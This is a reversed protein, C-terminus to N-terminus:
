NAEGALQANQKNNQRSIGRKSLGLLITHCMYYAVTAWSNFIRSKGNSRQRMSVQVDVIKMGNSQLLLLVGVDQYSLLTAEWTCLLKLAEHDYVRYGSTIDEISLSSILKLLHWALLRLRSGREVCAGIAVNARGQLVPPLLTSLSDVDHQGDADMTVAIRFGRSKAYRLGTQTAGWAGLREVLRLVTAGAERAHRATDDESADDIVLIPIDYQGRIAGVIDAIVEEENLAPILIITDAPVLTCADSVTTSPAAVATADAPDNKTYETDRSM